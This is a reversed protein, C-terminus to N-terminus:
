RGYLRDADAGRRHQSGQGIRGRTHLDVGGSYLLLCFAEEGEGEGREEGMGAAIMAM